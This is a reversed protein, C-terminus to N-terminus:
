SITLKEIEPPPPPYWPMRTYHYKVEQEKQQNLEDEWTEHKVLCSRCNADCKINKNNVIESLKLTRAKNGVGLGKGRKSIAEKDEDDYLIKLEYMPYQDAMKLLPNLVRREFDSSFDDRNGHMISFGEDATPASTGRLTKAQAVIFECRLDYTKGKLQIYEENFTGIETEFPIFNNEGEIDTFLRTACAIARKFHSIFIHRDRANKFFVTIDKFKREKVAHIILSSLAYDKGLFLDSNGGRKLLCFLENLTAYPYPFEYTDGWKVIKPFQLRPLPPLLSTEM